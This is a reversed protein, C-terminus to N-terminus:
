RRGGFEWDHIEIEEYLGARAYPEVALVGSVADRDAVEILAATGLWEGGDDSLLPGALIVHGLRNQDAIYRRYDQDLRDGGATGHGIVLFRRNSVDDGEFDWMARGLDNRWRRIIVEAFVGARYYPEDFAFARAAELDPLDVIHLSGTAVSGDPTLTPGRAIMGEAYGDMFSWHAETTRDRLEDTDPRDRGYVFFNV